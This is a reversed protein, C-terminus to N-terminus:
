ARGAEPASIVTMHGDPHPNLLATLAQPDTLDPDLWLDEHEPLLIAPMRDHIRRVTDCPPATIIACTAVTRGHPDQWPQWIAAMGFPEGTNMSILMPTNAGPSRLMEFFGTAPIICRRSRFAQKFSTKQALTESRANIIARDPATTWHPILGWRMVAPANADNRRLVALVGKSPLINHQPRYDKPGEAFRFREQLASMDATLTYRGCM